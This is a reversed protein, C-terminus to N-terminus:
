SEIGLEKLKRYLTMRQIGLMDAAKSKNQGCILLTDHIVKAEIDKLIHSLTVDPKEIEDVSVQKTMGNMIESIIEEPVLDKTVRDGEAIVLLRFVINKLERVNGPWYYSELIQFVDDNIDKYIGTKQFFLSRFHEILLPIDEKRDRLPPVNLNLVNLRYYLDSRFQQNKISDLLNHNTAAIVRVDIDITEPNGIKEIQNEQLVRLLKAQMQLPLDGIEDLFITGGHAMEFKGKKGDKSAGTFAGSEYGFLESELLTEPIASCNISVFPKDARASLHHVSHAFLEKGVGSEGSILVPLDIAAFSEARKKFHNIVSSKSIIDDIRYRSNNLLSRTEFTPKWDPRIAQIISQRIQSAQPMNEIDDPVIIGIGGIIKGSELIPIRDVTVVKGTAFRHRMGIEPIGNKLIIPLRTSHDFETLKKGIFSKFSPEGYYEIFAKNMIIIVGNEDVCNIPLPIDDFISVPIDKLVKDVIAKDQQMSEGWEPIRNGGMKLAM